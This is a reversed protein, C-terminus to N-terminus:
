ILPRYMQKTLRPLHFEGNKIATVKRFIAMNIYRDVYESRKPMEIDM